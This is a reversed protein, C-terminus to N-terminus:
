QRAEHERILDDIKGLAATYSRESEEHAAAMTERINKLWELTVPEVPKNWPQHCACRGDCEKEVEEPNKCTCASV